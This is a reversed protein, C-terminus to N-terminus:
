PSISPAANLQAVISYPPSNIVAFQNLPPQSMCNPTVADFLMFFLTAAGVAYFINGTSCNDQYRVLGQTDHWVRGGTRVNISTVGACSYSDCPSVQSFAVSGVMADGLNSGPPLNGSVVVGSFQLVGGFSIQAALLAVTAAVVTKGTMM